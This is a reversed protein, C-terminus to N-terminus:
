QKKLVNEVWRYAHVTHFVGDQGMTRFTGSERIKCKIHDGDALRNYGPYGKIFVTGQVDSDDDIMKPGQGYGGGARALSSVPPTYPEAAEVILGGNLIAVIEGKFFRPEGEPESIPTPAVETKKQAAIAPGPINEIKPNAALAPRQNLGLVFGLYACSLMGVVIWIIKM